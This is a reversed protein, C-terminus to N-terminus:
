DYDGPNGIPQSWVKHFIRCTIGCQSGTNYQPDHDQRQQDTQNTSNNEETGLSYRSAEKDKPAVRQCVVFYTNSFFVKGPITAETVRAIELAIPPSSRRTSPTHFYQVVERSTIRRNNDTAPMSRWYSRPFTTMAAKHIPM